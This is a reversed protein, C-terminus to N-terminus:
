CVALFLKKRATLKDVNYSEDFLSPVLVNFLQQKSLDHKFELRTIEKVEDKVDHEGESFYESLSIIM